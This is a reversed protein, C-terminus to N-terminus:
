NAKRDYAARMIETYRALGMNELESQFRDWEGFTMNGTILAVICEEVYEDIATKINALEATEDGTFLLPGMIAEPQHPGYLASHPKQPPTFSADKLSRESGDALSFYSVGTELWHKNQQSGWFDNLVVFNVPEGQQANEYLSTQAPDDTWDVGYEGRRGTITMKFDYGYDGLRFALEPDKCSSTIFWRKGLNAATRPAIQVGEPGVLPELLSMSHYNENKQWDAWISASGSTVAGIVYDGEGNVIAKLQNDDQTFSLPSLLGDNVLGNLYELGAKFADQTFAPQIVGNDLYFYSYEPNTEIFANMLFVFVKKGYGGNSSILGYEDARGNGNPDQSVFAQLMAKYDETTKPPELGLTDLWKQNIWMRYPLENWFVPSYAPVYYSHGDASLMNTLMFARDEESIVNADFYPTMEPNKWYEDLPVFVGRSGYTYISADDLSINLIDPMEAGSAAVVSFKTKADAGAPYLIFDLNVNFKEELLRTYLNTELDEILANMERAITLTKVPEASGEALGLPLAATVALLLALLLATPLRWTKM